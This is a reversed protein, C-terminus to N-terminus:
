VRKHRDVPSLTDDVGHMQSASSTSLGPSSGTSSCHLSMILTSGSRCSTGGSSGPGGRDGGSLGSRGSGGGGM